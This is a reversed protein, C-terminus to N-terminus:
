NMSNNTVQRQNIIISKIHGKTREGIQDTTAVKYEIVNDTAIAIHRMARAFTIKM